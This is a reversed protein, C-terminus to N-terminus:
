KPSQRGADPEGVDRRLELIHDHWDLATSIGFAVVESRPLADLAGEAVVRAQVEVLVSGIREMVADRVELESCDLRSLSLLSGNNICHYERFEFESPYAWGLLEVVPGGTREDSRIRYPTIMPAHAETEFSVCTSLAGPDTWVAIQRVTERRSGKNGAAYHRVADEVALYVEEAYREWCVQALAMGIEDLDM